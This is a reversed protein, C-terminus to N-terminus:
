ISINIGFGFNGHNRYCNCPGYAYYPCNSYRVNVYPRVNHHRLPMPRMPHMSHVPANYGHSVHYSVNVPKQVNKADATVTSFACFLMLFSLVVIKKM